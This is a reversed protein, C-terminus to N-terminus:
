QDKTQNRIIELMEDAFYQRAEVLHYCWFGGPQHKIESKRTQWYPCECSISLLDVLYFKNPNTRSAVHYRLNDYKTITASCSM